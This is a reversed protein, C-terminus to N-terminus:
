NFRRQRKDYYRNHLATILGLSFVIVGGLAAVIFGAEVLSFTRKFGIVTGITAVILLSLLALYELSGDERRLFEVTKPLLRVM